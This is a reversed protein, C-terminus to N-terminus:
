PKGLKFPRWLAFICFFGKFPKLSSSEDGILIIIWFKTYVNPLRPSRVNPPWLGYGFVSGSDIWYLDSVVKWRYLATDSMESKENTTEM